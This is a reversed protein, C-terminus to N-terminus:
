YQFEWPWPGQVWQFPTEQQSNIVELPGYQSEYKKQAEKTKRSYDHYLKIMKQHNPHMDLYLNLEHAVFAYIQVILLAQQRQNCPQLCYNSFGHYSMYLEKFLNGLMLAEDPEFLQINQYQCNTKPQENQFQFVNM